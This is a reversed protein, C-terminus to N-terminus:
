LESPEPPSPTLDPWVIASQTPDDQMYRITVMSGVSWGTRTVKEVAKRENGIHTQGSSDRFAYEIVLATTKDNQVFFQSSAINTVKAKAEVGNSLIKPQQVNKTHSFVRTLVISFVGGLIFIGSMLYRFPVIWADDPNNVDIITSFEGNIPFEGMMYGLFFWIGLGIAIFLVGM